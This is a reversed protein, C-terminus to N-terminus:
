APRPGDQPAHTTDLHATDGFQALRLHSGDGTWRSVSANPVIAVGGPPVSAGIGDIAYRLGVVVADHAVILVRQGPAAADLEALLGRVRLAVDALSEGGPPRYLWDGLRERRAAEAPARSRIAAPTHLEFVGMERDRLREDLLLPAGPARGLRAAERRMLAWTDRARRYPSCLVLDPGGGTGLGALWAGLAAAQAVGAAALPVDGDGGDLVADTVGDAKAREFVANAESRGHRIATLEALRHPVPM